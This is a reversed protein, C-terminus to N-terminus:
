HILLLILVSLVSYPYRNIRRKFASPRGKLKQYKQLKLIMKMRALSKRMIQALLHIKTLYQVASSLYQLRCSIMGESKDHDRVGDEETAVTDELDEESEDLVVDEVVEEDAKVFPSMHPPLVEGPAYPRSDLLKGANVCDFVWQPQIYVRRDNLTMNAVPRDVIHHTIKVSEVGFPSGAGASSDWGVRGGFCKIVFEMLSRPVERNIYFVTTAFLETLQRTEAAKQNLTSIQPLEDSDLIPAPVMTDDSTADIREKEDDSTNEDDADDYGAAPLILKPKSIGNRGVSNDNSDDGIAMSTGSEADRAHLLPQSRLVFADLGGAERDIKSDIALPYVVGLDTFLKYNVFGLLTRYLELFTAMVRFDVDSPTNQSFAHPVIWTILQSQIEAQYYVGKISIFVKRLLRNCIVYLQFETILRRCEEVVEAKIVPNDVHLTSFLSITSLADEM